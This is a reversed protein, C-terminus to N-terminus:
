KGILAQELRKKDLYQEFDGMATAVAKDTMLEQMALEGLRAFAVQFSQTFPGGQIVAKTEKVCDDALLRVVLAAVRRSSEDAARATNPSAHERMEPHAAMALFIWKALDKRDRGSTSDALCAQFAATPQQGHGALPVSLLVTLVFARTM